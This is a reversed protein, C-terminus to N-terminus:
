QVSLDRDQEIRFRYRRPPASAFAGLSTILLLHTTSHEGYIPRLQRDLQAPQM